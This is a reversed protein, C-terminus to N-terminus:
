GTAFLSPGGYMFNSPSLSLTDQLSKVALLDPIIALNECSIKFGAIQMYPCLDCLQIKVLRPRSFGDVFDM